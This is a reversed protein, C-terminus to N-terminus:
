IPNGRRDQGGSRAPRPRRDGATRRRPLKRRRRHRRRGDDHTGSRREVDSGRRRPHRAHRHRVGPRLPGPDHGDGAAVRGRWRPRVGTRAAGASLRSRDRPVNTGAESMAAATMSTLVTVAIVLPAPRGEASATKRAAEAAAQMMKTGGSAHVNVMWVGLSTAAAVASAVTNPIDHFKLDLFVKDGRATLTRVIVPGEATFLQSGIKFGGVHGRLLDALRLAEGGTPVDLAILLQDVRAGGQHHRAHRDTRDRPCHRAADHLQALGDLLKQWLMPDVFNATGVQVATAGAILFELVDSATAIGGMGIIPLRVAQRCEYVMRVAIPRIAPGSLGGVINSLRPRRTEVDIAMALFTNVLSVADAGAEEAARAFSAVDTVNPTLKPIIPLRTVKRVASVVAHTGTLSCGFTIGGEKINPCSINLELAAVGDADSLIRALEVYEDITTGCINVVVVARHRRLEPLKEAIFRHVGIGQLGIANLMGSPTEVIRPPPHGERESLFLGKVAIGGLSALDVANAYEVGYGFCGSAAILPNALRLTGISVSLDM